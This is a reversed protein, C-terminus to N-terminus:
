KEKKDKKRGDADPNMFTVAKNVRDASIPVSWGALGDMIMPAESTPLFKSLREIQGAYEPNKAQNTWEDPDTEHPYLEETGDFYRTYRFHKDRLTYNGRGWSTIAPTPLPLSPDEVYPALSYGDVYAPIELGSMDCLTRYINILSVGDLVERGSKFTKDRTDWIIFPVRTTEEWLAFKRFHDKEGMAYGHDSWLIVITNEAYPGDHLADLLRGVNFDAWTICALYSRWVKNWAKDRNFRQVDGTKAMSRGVPPIDKLDNPKIKAPTVEEPYMDFFQKPATFPLHPRIIGVALFFPKDHERSLIDVGYSTNTYDTHNELPGLTPSFNMKSSKGQRYGDVEDFKITGNKQRPYYDTWEKPNDAARHHIKGSGYTNYGNRQFVEGLATYPKLIEPPFEKQDYFAYLGSNFPEVGYLIANRSPSCGPAPCHANKFNVGKDALVNMNPTIAQPHGGLFGTWDNMDDIAIFLINPRSSGTQAPVCLAFGILSVLLIKCKNQM